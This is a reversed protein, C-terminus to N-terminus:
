SVHNDHIISLCRQADGGSALHQNLAFFGSRTVDYYLAIEINCDGHQYTWWRAAGKTSSTTPPGLLRLIESQPLGVVYIPVM